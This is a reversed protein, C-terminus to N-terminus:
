LRMCLLLLSAGTQDAASTSISQPKLVDGVEIDEKGSTIAGAVRSGVLTKVDINGELMTAFTSPAAALAKELDMQGATGGAAEASGWVKLIKFRFPAAWKAGDKTNNNATTYVPLSFMFVRGLEVARSAGVKSLGTDVKHYEQFQADTLGIEGLYPSADFTAM